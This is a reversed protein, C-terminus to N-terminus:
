TEIVIGYKELLGPVGRISFRAKKIRNNDPDIAYDYAKRFDAQELVTRDFTARALSCEDFAAGTLDTEVFDVEQLQCNRFVTRKLKMRYFSSHNLQCGDFSFSLGFANCTDFRLGLLKSDQFKVDRFATQSIDALSLNCGSFTCDIFVFASLNGEAFDCGNFVCNEYEARTLLDGKHFVTDLIFFDQM